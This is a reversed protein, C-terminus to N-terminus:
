SFAKRSTSVFISISVVLSCTLLSFLLILYNPSTFKPLIESNSRTLSLYVNKVVCFVSKTFDISSNSVAM